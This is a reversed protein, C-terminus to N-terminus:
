VSLRRIDGMQPLRVPCICVRWAFAVIGVFAVYAFVNKMIEREKNNRISSGSVATMSRNCDSYIPELVIPM